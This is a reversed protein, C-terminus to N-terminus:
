DLFQTNGGITSLGARSSPSSLPSMDACNPTGHITGNLMTGNLMTGNLMTQDGKEEAAGGFISNVISARIGGFFSM